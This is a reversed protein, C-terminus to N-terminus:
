NGLLCRMHGILSLGCYAHELVPGLGVPGYAFKLLGAEAVVLDSVRCGILVLSAANLRAVAADAVAPHQLLAQEVPRPWVKEGGTVIMEGSRGFVTLRGDAGLAGLDGTDLWGRADKPDTGDRYARL